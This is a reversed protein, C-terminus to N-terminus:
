KQSVLEKSYTKETRGHFIDMNSKQFIYWKVDLLPYIIPFKGAFRSISGVIQRFVPNDIKEQLFSFAHEINIKKLPYGKDILQFGHKSFLTNLTKDSYWHTVSPPSYEHWRKGLIRAVASKMNWSEVLVLGSPKLLRSVNDLARDVDYFHGIVQIMNVVDFKKPSEFDELSGAQIDLNLEMRGYSAMTMNPEIGSCKWGSDKFGKLIFGAASGVDLLRGPETYKGILKAYRLGHKYLLDKQKLYNPYGDKGAFFYDDAYVTSLHNNQDPIKIFRHGCRGCELIPYGKKTFLVSKKENCDLYSSCAKLSEIKM